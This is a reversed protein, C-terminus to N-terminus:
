RGIEDVSKADGDLCKVSESGRVFDEHCLCCLFSEVFAAGGLSKCESITYFNVYRWSVRLKKAGSAAGVM